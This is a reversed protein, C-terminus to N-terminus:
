KPRMGNRSPMGLDRSNKIHRAMFENGETKMVMCGCELFQWRHTKLCGLTSPGIVGITTDRWAFATGDLTSYARSYHRVFRRYVRSGGAHQTWRCLRTAARPSNSLLLPASSEPASLSSTPNESM